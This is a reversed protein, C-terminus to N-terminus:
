EVHDAGDFLCSVLRLFHGGSSLPLQYNLISLNFIKLIGNEARQKLYTFQYNLIFTILNRGDKM